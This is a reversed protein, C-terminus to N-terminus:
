LERLRIAAAHQPFGEHEALALAADSIGALAERNLYAVSSRKRFAHVTVGSNVHAFGSTPLTAPVGITFNAAALPTNQGLLIEGANRIKGLVFMPDRTAIQMHEPAYENVFDIAEDLDRTIVVGGYVSTAAEAYKRRQEPLAALQLAAERQVAEVLDRSPTVLIGAADEGHEAENLVDAAVLRPDATEDALVVGESPGYLGAINVGELQALMAAIQVPSSGPGTILRVRRITATGLALAAIGSPGNVRYVEDIGLQDAAVLIAQDIAANGRALPPTIVAIESVGAVVAPTAIQVMVSPFSGKGCPVYLGVRDIPTSQEGLLMGPSLEELWSAGQLLRENYRRVNAIATAIAQQVSPAVSRRAAAIEEATVRLDEPRVSVDHFRQLYGVLAADGNRRVDEYIARIRQVTEQDFLDARARNFMVRREEATMSAYDYVRM